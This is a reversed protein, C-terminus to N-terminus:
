SFLRRMNYDFTTKSALGSKELEVLESYKQRSKKLLSTLIPILESITGDDFSHSKIVEFLSCNYANIHHHIYGRFLKDGERKDPIANILTYLQSIKTANDGSPTTENRLWGYIAQRSVLFIDAWETKNFGLFEVLKSFQENYSTLAFSQFNQKSISTNKVLYQALSNLISYTPQYITDLLKDSTFFMMHNSNYGTSIEFGTQVFPVINSRVIPPSHAVRGDQYGYSPTSDMCYLPYTSDLVTDPIAYYPVVAM